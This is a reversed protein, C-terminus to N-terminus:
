MHGMGGPAPPMASATASPPPMAGMGMGMPKKGGMGMGMPAPPAGAGMSTGSASAAPMPNPQTSAIAKRQADSLVGVAGGVTRLFDMRQQGALRAIEGIKTEIKTIDPAESSSLVWLDQEGQDIKRQTTAYAVASKEKLATLRKQQEDTLGIATAQDLFFTDAGLHYIHPAGTASPLGGSAGSGSAMPPQGLMRAMGPPAMAAPAGGSPAGMNMPPSAGSPAAKAMPDSPTAGDGAPPMGAHPEGAAQASAISSQVTQAQRVPNTTASAKDEDAKSCGDCIVLIAAVLLMRAPTHFTRAIQKSMPSERLEIIATTCQPRKNRAQIELNLRSLTTM